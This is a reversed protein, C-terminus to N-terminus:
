AHAARGTFRAGRGRRLHDELVLGGARQAAPDVGRDHPRRTAAPRDTGSRFRRPHPDRQAHIGARRSATRGCHRGPGELGRSELALFDELAAGIEDATSARDLTVEAQDALQRMQRRLEKRKKASISRELYNSRMLPPSLAARAHEGFWACGGQQKIIVAALAAAFKGTSPVFPLLLLGPLVGKALFQFAAEITAEASDRDVLPVGYPAFPHTWGVLVPMPLGYRRREVRAPFLGLLKRRDTGSWVLLAGVDSGFVPAAALAFAPEYFINREVARGALVKWPKIVDQLSALPRWEVSLLRPDPALEVRPDPLVSPANPVWRSGVRSLDDATAVGPAPAAAAPVGELPVIVVDKAM